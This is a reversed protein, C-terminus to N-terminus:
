VVERDLFLDGKLLTKFKGAGGEEHLIGYLPVGKETLQPLLSSLMTAEQMSLPAPSLLFMFM